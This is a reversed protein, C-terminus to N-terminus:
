EQGICFVNSTNKWHMERPLASLSMGVVMYLFGWPAALVLIFLRFGDSEVIAGGRLGGASKTLSRKTAARYSYPRIYTKLCKTTREELVVSRHHRPPLPCMMRSSALDQAKLLYPRPSTQFVPSTTLSVSPPNDYFSQIFGDTLTKRLM